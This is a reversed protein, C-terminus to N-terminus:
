FPETPDSNDYPEDRIADDHKGEFPSEESPPPEVHSKSLYGKLFEQLERDLAIAAENTEHTTPVIAFAPPVFEVDGTTDKPGARMEVASNDLEKGHKKNFDFWPGLASGAMRINGIVLQDAGKFAIYVSKAFKGKAYVVKEKISNWTGEAIVDGTFYKVLMIDSNSRVENSYIGSKAKKNYGTVCSLQDLVLFRFGDPVVINEKTNEKDYWVLRGESGKWEFWRTSPNRSNGTPNSRSM